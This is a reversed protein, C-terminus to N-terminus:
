WKVNNKLQKRYYTLGGNLDMKLLLGEKFRVM